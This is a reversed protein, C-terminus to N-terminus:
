CIGATGSSSTLRSCSSKNSGATSFFNRELGQVAQLALSDLENSLLEFIHVFDQGLRLLLAKVIHDVASAEVGAFEEVIGTAMWNATM